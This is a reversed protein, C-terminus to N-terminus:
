ITYEKIFNKQKVPLIVTFESGRGVESSIDISGGHLEVLQKSLTLGLGSGGFEESTSEYAQDLRNFIAKYKSKDIGIGTDKVVVKVCEYYEMIKIEITGGEETFKAANSILNM